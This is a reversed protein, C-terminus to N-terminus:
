TQRVDWGHMCCYQVLHDKVRNMDKFYAVADRTADEIADGGALQYYFEAREPCCHMAIDFIHKVSDEHHHGLTRTYANTFSVRLPEGPDSLSRSFAEILFQVARTFWVLGSSCSPRRLESGHTAREHAVMDHLTQFRPEHDIYYQAMVRVNDEFRGRVPKFAINTQTDMIGALVRAAGLFAVLDIHGDSRIVNAFTYPRTAFWNSM